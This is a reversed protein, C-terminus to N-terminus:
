GVPGSILPMFASLSTLIESRTGPLPVKSGLPWHPRADETRIYVSDRRTIYIPTKYALISPQSITPTCALSPSTGPLQLPSFSAQPPRSFRRLPLNHQLTTTM